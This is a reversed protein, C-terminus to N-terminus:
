SYIMNLFAHSLFPLVLSGTKEVVSGYVLSHVFHTSVGTPLHWYQTHAAAFLVSTLTVRAVSNDFINKLREPLLNVAKPIIIRQIIDRFWIEEFLSVWIQESIPIGGIKFSFTSEFIRSLLAPPLGVYQDLNNKVALPMYRHISLDWHNIFIRPCSNQFAGASCAIIIDITLLSVNIALLKVPISSISGGSSHILKDFNHQCSEIM